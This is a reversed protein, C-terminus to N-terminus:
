GKEKTEKASRCLSNNEIVYEKLTLFQKMLPSLGELDKDPKAKRAMTWLVSIPITEETALEAMDPMEKWYDESDPFVEILESMILLILERDQMANAQPHRFKTFFFQILKDLTDTTVPKDPHNNIRSLVRRHLGTERHIDSLFVKEETKEEVLKLLKDINIRIM